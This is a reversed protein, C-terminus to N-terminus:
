NFHAAEGDVLKCSFRHLSFWMLARSVQIM